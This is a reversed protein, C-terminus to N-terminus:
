EDNNNEIFVFDVVANIRNSSRPSYQMSVLKQTSSASLVALFDVVNEPLLRGSVQLRITVVSNLGIQQTENGILELRPRQILEAMLTELKQLAQAEAVSLTTAKSMSEISANYRLSIAEIETKDVPNEFIRSLRAHLSELRAIDQKANINADHILRSFYVM